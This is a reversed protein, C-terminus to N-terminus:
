LTSFLGANGAANNLFAALKNTSNGQIIGNRYGSPVIKNKDIKPHYTTERMNAFIM